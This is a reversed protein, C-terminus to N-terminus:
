IVIWRSMIVLKNLQLLKSLLAEKGAPVNQVRKQLVRVRNRKHNTLTGAENDLLENMDKRRRIQSWEM